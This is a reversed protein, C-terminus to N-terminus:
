EPGVVDIVCEGARFREAAGADHLWSLRGHAPDGREGLGVAM